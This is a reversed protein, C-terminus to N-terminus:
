NKSKILRIRCLNLAWFEIKYLIVFLIVWSLNEFYCVNQILLQINKKVIASVYYKFFFSVNKLKFCILKQFRSFDLTRFKSIRLNQIAGIQFYM